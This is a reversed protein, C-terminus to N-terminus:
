AAPRRDRIREEPRDLAGELAQERAIGARVAREERWLRRPAEAQRDADHLVGQFTQQRRAGQQTALEPRTARFALPAVRVHQPDQAAARQRPQAALDLGHIGRREGPEQRCPLPDHRDRSRARVHRYEPSRGRQFSEGLDDVLQGAHGDRRGHQLAVHERRADGAVLRSEEILQPRHALDRPDPPPTETAVVAPDHEHPGPAVDQSRDPRRIAHLPRDALQVVPDALVEPLAPRAEVPGDCGGRAPARIALHEVGQPVEHPGPSTVLSVTAGSRARRQFRGLPLAADPARRGRGPRSM